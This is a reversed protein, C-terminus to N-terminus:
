ARLPHRLDHACFWSCLITVAAISLRFGQQQGAPDDHIGKLEVAIAGLSAIAAAMTLILVAIARTRAPRAREQMRGDLVRGRHDLRHELLVRGRRGLVRLRLEGDMGGPAHRLRPDGLLASGLFRPRLNARLRTM